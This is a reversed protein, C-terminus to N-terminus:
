NNIGNITKIMVEAIGMFRKVYSEENPYTKETIKGLFLLTRYEVKLHNSYMIKANPKNTLMDPMFLSHYACVKDADDIVGLDELKILVDTGNM